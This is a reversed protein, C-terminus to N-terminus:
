HLYLGLNNPFDDCEMPGDGWHYYEEEKVFYKLKLCAAVAKCDKGEKKQRGSKDSEDM